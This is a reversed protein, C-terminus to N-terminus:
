ISVPVLILAILAVIPTVIGLRRRAAPWLASLVTLLAALPIVIVVAHVLLVHAPLGNIEEVMLIIM